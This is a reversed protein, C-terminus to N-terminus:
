GTRLVRVDGVRRTIHQADLYELFPLVYKRSSGFLDRAQAVTISGERRIFDQVRALMEEFTPRLFLINESVRVLDGREVLALVVEEGVEEVAEQFTPPAYPQGRFRDLLRSIAEEQQPTFRLRHDSLRLGAEEEILWGARAAAEVLANFLRQPWPRRGVLRSRVEERPMVLRLPNEQHYTQLIQRLRALTNEWQEVTFVWLDPHVNGDREPIVVQESRLLDEVASLVEEQGLGSQEVIHGVPLPGWRAIVARVITSPEGSAMLRLSDLIEQRFRRYKRRPYPNIVQGGGVTISPSPWRVIFRDGRATVVPRSLALQAWGTQGPPIEDQGLVRVRAPVEAAGVFFDVQDNHRLPHGADQLVHLQVDVLTTARFLDPLTLVDGRRIQDKEVGSLNVAVRSGPVAMERQRKHTQLGRVRARLGQPLIEVEQGVHLCGDLLTGTVVTGFGTVTFVRDIPLRPRGRDPRPPTRALLDALADLLASIGQGTTASVPLIPANALTTARLAERVDEEVLALWEEDVLDTKTLAVIGHSVGLLDLIALHERTQPMVGEDAAVVFLVADISGVGALMNKIFDIHGPVDVIGVEEGNPLTLWAFGLDITMQRIKEEKLRDPDIGTLAKVLTSKGHDVHGATGIVHM